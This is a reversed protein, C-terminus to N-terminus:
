RTPRRRYLAFVDGRSDRVGAHRLLRWAGTPKTIAPTEPDFSKGKMASRAIFVGRGAEDNTNGPKPAHWTIYVNNGQPDGGRFSGGDLGYALHHRENRARFRRLMTSGHPLFRRPIKDIGRSPRLGKVWAM